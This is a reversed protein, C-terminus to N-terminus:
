LRAQAVISKDNYCWSRLRVAPFVKKGSNGDPFREEETKRLVGILLYLLESRSVRNAQAVNIDDEDPFRPMLDQCVLGSSTM